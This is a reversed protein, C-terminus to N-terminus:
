LCHLSGFFKPCHFDPKEVQIANWSIFHPTQLEDGCKYFNAKISQESLDKIEHKFFATFPIILAVEWSCEGIREDFPDRGLSSWRQVQELVEKPARERNEREKGAGILITGACNCELNYYIGDNNPIVFFEVCSDTWVPGNDASSNARVSEETVKFNLIFADKSYAIRFRVNPCYPYEDWNVEDLKQFAVKEKDLLAPIADVPINAISIKKVDLQKM